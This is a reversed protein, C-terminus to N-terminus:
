AMSFDSGFLETLEIGTTTSPSKGADSGLVPFSTFGSNESVNGETTTRERRTGSTDNSADSGPEVLGSNGQSPLNPPSKGIEVIRSPTRLFRYLSTIVILLNCVLLSTSGNFHSLVFAMYGIRAQIEPSDSYQTRYLLVLTLTAVLTTLLSALFCVQLLRRTLPPLRLRVLPPPANTNTPSPQKPCHFPLRWFFTVFPIIVLFIDGVVQSAFRFSGAAPPV